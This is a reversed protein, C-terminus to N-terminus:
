APFPKRLLTQLPRLQAVPNNRYYKGEVKVTLIPNIRFRSNSAM